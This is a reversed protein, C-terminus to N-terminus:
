SFVVKKARFFFNQGVGSITPKAIKLDFRFGREPISLKKKM